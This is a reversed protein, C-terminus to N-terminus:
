KIIQLEKIQKWLKSSSETIQRYMIYKKSYYEKLEPRPLYERKTEVHIAAEEYSDKEGAAVLMSLAVGRASIDSYGSIRVPVGIVDAFMQGFIESKAGGGILYIVKISDDKETHEINYLHNFVIGEFVARMLDDRGHWNRIGIFCSSANVDSLTGFLFPLFLIQNQKAASVKEQVIKYANELGETEYEHPYLVRIYYDQVSGSNGEIPGTLYYGPVIHPYSDNEKCSKTTIYNAGWTGVICVLENLSLTGVGFLSAQMDHAGAYVPTGERLGTLLAAESTITGTQQDVHCLMPLASKMEPIGLRDFLEFCYKDKGADLLAGVVADTIDTARMGSLKYRIWDKSFMISAIKEYNEPENDKIWKLYLGPVSVDMNIGTKEKYWNCIGEKECQEFLEGTRTDLSLIGARVPTGKDDIAFLGCGQGTVSVCRIQDDDTLESVTEKIAYASAQWIAEMDQECWGYGPSEIQPCPAATIKIERGALDFLSVKINTSGRDVIMIYENKM